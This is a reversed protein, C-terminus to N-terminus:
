TIVEENENETMKGVVELRRGCQGGRLNWISQLLYKITIEM